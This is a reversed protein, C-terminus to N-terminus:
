LRIASFDPPAIYGLAGGRCMDAFIREVDEHERVDVDASKDDEIDEDGASPGSAETDPPGPANTTRQFGAYYVGDRIFAPTTSLNLERRYFYSDDGFAEKEAAVLNTFATYYLRQANRRDATDWRTQGILADSIAGLHGLRVTAPFINDVRGGYTSNPLGSPTKTGSQFDRHCRSLDDWTGSEATDLTQHDDGMAVFWPLINIRQSSAPGTSGHPLGPLSLRVGGFQCIQKTRGYGFHAGDEKTWMDADIRQVYGDKAYGRDILRKHWTGIDRYMGLLLETCNRSDEDSLALSGQLANEGRGSRVFDTINVDIHRFFTREGPYTRKAYYPFSVLKWAHDPRCLAYFAYYAPDQRVMQQVLSFWM